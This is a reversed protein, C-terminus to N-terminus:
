QHELERYVKLLAEQINLFELYGPPLPYKAVDFPKLPNDIKQRVFTYLAKQEDTAETAQEFSVGCDNRWLHPDVADVMAQVLSVRNGFKANLFAALRETQSYPYRVIDEYGLFLRHQADETHQLILTMIHQWRLLNMAVFSINGKVNPPMIFKQWSVATDLPNRVTIIYIADDWIQKWFPLFHSLAPDKWFWPGGNHMEAMLETAKKRYVPIAAKKRMRHQFDPDWWTAGTDFDGLEALLDWLPEYEWYGRPAHMDASHLKEPPGAYAGWKHLMEAVVSTGSREVGLIIIPCRDPNLM